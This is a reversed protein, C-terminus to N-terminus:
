GRKFPYVLSWLLNQTQPIQAQELGLTMGIQGKVPRAQYTRFLRDWISFNFGYNKQSEDMIISHHVRHMDPTVIIKRLLNDLKKPLALNAHNFIATANLIIEFVILSLVAPGVLLVVGCKYIMSLLIELPHFRVGSSADLDRDAHHVRHLRWLIPIKHSLVHQFWISFDLLIFALSFEVWFPWDLLNFVGWGNQIAWAAVGVAILPGLLSLSLSGTVVLGLNTACRRWRNQVRRRRPLLSELVSFVILAGAFISLRIVATQDM